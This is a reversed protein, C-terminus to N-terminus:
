VSFAVWWNLALHEARFPGSQRPGVGQLQWQPPQNPMMLPTKWRPPSWSTKLKLSAIWQLVLHWRWSWALIM